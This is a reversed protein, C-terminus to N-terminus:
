RGCLFEGHFAAKAINDCLRTIRGIRESDPRKWSSPISSRYTLIQNPAGKSKRVCNKGSPSDSTAGPSEKPSHRAGAVLDMASGVGVDKVHDLAKMLGSAELLAPWLDQDVLERM